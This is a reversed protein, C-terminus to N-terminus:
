GYHIYWHITSCIKYLTVTDIYCLVSTIGTDTFIYDVFYSKYRCVTYMCMGTSRYHICTCHPAGYTAKNIYKIIFPIYINISYINNHNIINNNTM